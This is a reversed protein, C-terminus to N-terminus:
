ISIKKKQYIILGQHRFFEPARELRDKAFQKTAMWFLRKLLNPQQVKYHEGTKPEIKKVVRFYLLFAFSMICYVILVAILIYVPIKILGWIMDFLSKFVNLIM